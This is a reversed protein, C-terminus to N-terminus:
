CLKPLVVKPTKKEVPKKRQQKVPTHYELAPTPKADSLLNNQAHSFNFKRLSGNYNNPEYSGLMKETPKIKRGSKSTKKPPAAGGGRMQFLVSKQSLLNSSIKVFLVQRSQLENLEHRIEELRSSIYQLEQDFKENEAEDESDVEEMPETKM